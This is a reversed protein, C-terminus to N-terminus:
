AVGAMHLLEAVKEKYAELYGDDLMPLYEIQLEFPLHFFRLPDAKQLARERM